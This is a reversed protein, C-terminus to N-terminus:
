IRAEKRTKAWRIREIERYFEDTDKVILSTDAETQKNLSKEIIDNNEQRLIEIEIKDAKEQQLKEIDQVVETDDYGKFNEIDNAHSNVVEKIENMDLDTVKNERAVNEDNQLTKKNEYTIRSSM